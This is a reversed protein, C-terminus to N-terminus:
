YSRPMRQGPPQERDLVIQGGTTIVGSTRGARGVATDPFGSAGPSTDLAGCGVLALVSLLMLCRM